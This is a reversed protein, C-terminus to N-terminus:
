GWPFYVPPCNGAWCTLFNYFPIVYAAILYQIPEM